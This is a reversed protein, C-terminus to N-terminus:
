NLNFIHKHNTYMYDEPLKFKKAKEFNTKIGKKFYKYNIEELSNITNKIDEFSNVIIMGSTDFVEHILPDGWYIPVCGTAFCDILKETFYGPIKSNEICLHYKYDRLAEIKDKIPKVHNGYFDIQNINNFVQHRLRHGTMYKKWSIVTSILRPKKHNISWDNPDIWCTGLPVWRGNPIQKLLDKDHTLVYKYFQHNQIIWQYLGNIYERCEILWACKTHPAQYISPLTIFNDTVVVTDELNVQNERDWEFWECENGLPGCYKTHGFSADIIKIKQKTIPYEEM